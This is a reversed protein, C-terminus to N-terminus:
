ETKREPLTAALTRHEGVNLVNGQRALCTHERHLKKARAAHM